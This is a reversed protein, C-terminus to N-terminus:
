QSNSINKNFNFEFKLAGCDWIRDMGLEKALEWETLLSKESKNEFFCNDLLLQKSFESENHRNLYDNKKLFWCSPETQNIFKFGNKFFVSEEPCVGSWRINSYAIIKNPIYKEVFYNLLTEFAGVVNTNIKSCFRILEFSNKNETNNSFTMIYKLKNNLYLGIRINDICDGELHNEELFEKKGEISVEKIQCNKSHIKKPTKNVLNLILSKVIDKKLMFEDEFIHILKMKNLKFCRNTKNLHYNKDKGGKFDSHFYNGNIEIALNYDPIKFDLEFPHITKNDNPVFDINNQKLFEDIEDQHRSNRQLPYCIRCIPPKLGSFTAKFETGCKLCKFNYKIYTKNKTKKNEELLGIYDDLLKLKKNKLEKLMEKFYSDLRTKSFKEPNNYNEDGYKDIKTQKLKDKTDQSQFVNEVGYIKLFTEKTKKSKKEINEPFSNWKKICKNSCLIKKNSKRIKFETNCVLCKRIETNKITRLKGSCKKSCTKKNKPMLTGCIPCPILEEEKKIKPPRNKLSKISKERVEKMQFVFKVGHNKELTDQAKKQYEELKMAHDVGYLENMTERAQERNNYNEDGYKEKKTQKNKDINNYNEDGYKEKKTQKNKETNRYNEDGYKDIKTQKGKEQVEKLLLTSKVGYKEQVTKLAKNIRKEKNEPISGWIVRCEDSCFERKTTKKVEFEKGCIKCKRIERNAKKKLEGSCARSCTKGGWKTKKGCLECFTEKEM